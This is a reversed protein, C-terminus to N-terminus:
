GAGGGENLLYYGQMNSGTTIKKEKKKSACEICLTVDPGSYFERGCNRCVRLM